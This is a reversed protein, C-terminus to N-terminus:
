RSIKQISSDKRMHHDQVQGRPSRNLGLSTQEYPRWRHNLQTVADTTQQRLTEMQNAKDMTLTKSEDLLAKMQAPLDNSMRNIHALHNQMQENIIGLKGNTELFQGSHEAFKTDVKSFLDNLRAEFSALRQELVGNTAVFQEVTVFSM